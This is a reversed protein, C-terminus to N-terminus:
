EEGTGTIKDAVKGLGDVILQCSQEDEVNQMCLESAKQLGYQKAIGILPEWLGLDKLKAVGQGLGKTIKEILSKTKPGLKIKPLKMKHLNLRLKRLNLGLKRLHIKPWKIHPLKPFKLKPLKIKPLRIKPLKIKPFKFSFQLNIEDMLGNFEDICEDLAQADDNEEMKDIEVEACYIAALLLLILFSKKM